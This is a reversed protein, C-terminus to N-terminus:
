LYAIVPSSRLTAFGVKADGSGCFLKLLEAYPRLPEVEAAENEVYLLLICEGDTPAKLGVVLDM